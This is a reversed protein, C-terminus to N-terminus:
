DAMVVLPKGIEVVYRALETATESGVNRGANIMGSRIFSVDGASLRIAPQPINRQVHNSEM